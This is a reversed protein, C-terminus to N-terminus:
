GFPHLNRSFCRRVKCISGLRLKATYFFFHREFNTIACECVKSSCHCMRGSAVGGVVLAALSPVCHPFEPSLRCARRTVVGVFARGSVRQIFAPPSFRASYNGLHPSASPLWCALTSPTLALPTALELNCTREVAMRVTALHHHRHSLPLSCSPQLSSISWYHADSVAVATACRGM